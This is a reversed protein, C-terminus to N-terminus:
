KVFKDCFAEFLLLGIILAILKLWNLLCWKWSRTGDPGLFLDYNNDRGSM